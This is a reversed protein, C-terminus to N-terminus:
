TPPWRPRELRPHPHPHPRHRALWSARRAIGTGFSRKSTLAPDAGCRPLHRRISRFQTSSSASLPRRGSEWGQVTTVDVELAEALASQTM